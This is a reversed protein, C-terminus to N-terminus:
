GRNQVHEMNSKSPRGRRSVYFQAIRDLDESNVVWSRGIKQAPLRGDRIIRCVSYHHIGLRTAVEATSLLEAM